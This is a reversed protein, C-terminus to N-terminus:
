VRSLGIPVLAMARKPIDPVAWKLWAKYHNKRARYPVFGLAELTNQKLYSVCTKFDRGWNVIRSFPKYEWFGQQKERTDVGHGWTAIKTPSGRDVRARSFLKFSQGGM